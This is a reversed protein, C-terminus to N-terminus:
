RALVIKRTASGQDTRVRALYVGSPLDRGQVDVGDWTVRHPGAERPGSGLDAVLRGRLDFIELSTHSAAALDFQFTVRPNFPNPVAQLVLQPRIEPIDDGVASIEGIGAHAAMYHAPPASNSSFWGTLLYETSALVSHMQSVSTNALSFNGAPKPNAADALDLVLGTVEQYAWDGAFVLFSPSALNLQDALVPAVPDSIDWTKLHESGLMTSSDGRHISYMWTGRAYTRIGNAGLDHVTLPQLSLRNQADFLKVKTDNTVLVLSDTTMVHMFYGGDLPYYGIEVPLDPDSIDVVRINNPVLSGGGDLAIVTQDDLFAVVRDSSPPDLDALVITGRLEAGYRSVTAIKLVGDSTLAAISSGRQAMGYVSTGESGLDVTWLLSGDGGIEMAALANAPPWALGYVIDKLMIGKPKMLDTFGLNGTAALSAHLGDDYFELRNDGAAMIKGGICAVDVISGVQKSERLLDGTAFDIIGLYSRAAVFLESGDIELRSEYLYYPYNLPLLDTAVIAGPVTIDLREVQDKTVAYALDGHMVADIYNITSASPYEGLLVPTAPTSIDLIEFKGSNVIGLRDGDLCVATVDTGYTGVDYLAGPDTIDVVVLGGTGCAVFAHTASVDVRTAEGPLDLSDVLLPAEPVAVSLVSLGVNGTAVFVNWEKVVIDREVGLAHGAGMYMASGDLIRYINVGSIDNGVAIYDNGWLSYAEVTYTMGELNEIHDLHPYISYDAPVAPVSWSISSSLVLVSLVILCSVCFLKFM